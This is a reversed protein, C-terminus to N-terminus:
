CGRPSWRSTCTSPLMRLAHHTKPATGAWGLAACAIANPRTNQSRQTRTRPLKAHARPRVHM